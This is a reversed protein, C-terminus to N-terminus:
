FINFGVGVQINRNKWKDTNNVDNINNLGAVYRGYINIKSFKLQLGAAAAINGEKFASEGNKLLSKNKDLLVSFQPGAQITLFPAAKINLLVPIDLYNLKVKDIQKFGYVTSFQTATDANVSSFLVEPQIGIKSTLGIIAYGGAQYGFAFKDKFPIGDIKQLNAGAKLGFHLSQAITFETICFLCIALPIIKKM